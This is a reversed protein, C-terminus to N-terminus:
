TITTVRCHGQAISSEDAADVPKKTQPNLSMYVVVEFTTSLPESFLVNTISENYADIRDFINQISRPVYKKM